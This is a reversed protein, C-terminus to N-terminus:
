FIAIGFMTGFDIVAVVLLVTPDGIYLLLRTETSGWLELTPALLWELLVGSTKLLTSRSGSRGKIGIGVADSNPEIGPHRESCSFPPPDVAASTRTSGNAFAAAM